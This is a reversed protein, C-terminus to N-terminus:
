LFTRKPFKFKEIKALAHEFEPQFHYGHPLRLGSRNDRKILRGPLVLLEM